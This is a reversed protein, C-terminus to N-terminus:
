NRRSVKGVILLVIGVSVFILGNYGPGYEGTLRASDPSSPSYLVEVQKGQLHLPPNDTFKKDSEVTYTRRDVNYAVNLTFCRSQRGCQFTYPVFDHVVGATVDWALASYATAAGVYVGWAMMALGVLTATTSKDITM